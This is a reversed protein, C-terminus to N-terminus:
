EHGHQYHGPSGHGLHGPDPQEAAEAVCPDGEVNHAGGRGDQVQADDAHVPVPGDGVREPVLAPHRAAEGEQHDSDRPRQGHEDGEDGHLEVPVARVVVAACLFLAVAVGAQVPSVGDWRGEDAEVDGHEDHHARVRANEADGLGLDSPNRGQLPRRSLARLVLAVARRRVVFARQFRRELSLGLNQLRQGDDHTHEHEAPQGEEDQVAHNGKTLHVFRSLRRADAVGGEIDEHPEAPGVRGQVRDNVGEVCVEPLGKGGNQAATLEAGRGRHLRHIEAVLQNGVVVVGSQLLLGDRSGARM